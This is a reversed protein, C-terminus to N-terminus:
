TFLVRIYRFAVQRQQSTGRLTIGIGVGEKDGRSPLPTVVFPITSKATTARMNFSDRGRRSLQVM